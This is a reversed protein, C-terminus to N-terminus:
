ELIKRKICPGHFEAKSNLLLKQDKNRIRISENIQRSLCDNFTGVIKMQFDVNNQESEHDKLVHRYLVSKKSRKELEKRHEAGRIYGNRATEGEYSININRQKCLKCTISYGVNSTKCQSSKPQDKCIMCHEEPPCNKSLPNATKFYDIYKRGSLEVFKIRSDKDTM